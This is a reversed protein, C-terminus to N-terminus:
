LSPISAPVTGGDRVDDWTCDADDEDHTCIHYGLRYWDCYSSLYGELNDVIISKSEANWDFALEGAYYEPDDGNPQNLLPLENQVGPYSWPTMNTLWTDLWNHFDTSGTPSHFLVVRHAAM